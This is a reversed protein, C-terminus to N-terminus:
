SLEQLRAEAWRGFHHDHRVDGLACVAADKDHRRLACVAQIVCRKVLDFESMGGVAHDGRLRAIADPVVGGVAVRPVEMIARVILETSADIPCIASPPDDLLWAGEADAEFNDLSLFFQAARTFAPLEAPPTLRDWANLNFAIASVVARSVPRCFGALVELASMFKEKHDGFSGVVGSSPSQEKQLIGIAYDALAGSYERSAGQQPVSKVYTEIDGMVFKPRVLIQRFQRDCLALDSESPVRFEVRIDSYVSAGTEPRVNELRVEAHVPRHAVLWRALDSPALAYEDGGARVICATCNFVLFEDALAEHRVIVLSPAPGGQFSMGPLELPHDLGIHARLAMEDVFKHSCYPCRVERIAHPLSSFYESWRDIASEQIWGTTPM